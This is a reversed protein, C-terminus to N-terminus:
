FSSSKRTMNIGSIELNKFEMKELDCSVPEETGKALLFDNDIMGLSKYFRVEPLVACRKSNLDWVQLVRDDGM